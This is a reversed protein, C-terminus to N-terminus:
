SRKLGNIAQVINTNGESIKAAISSVVDEKADRTIQWERIKQLESLVAKNEGTHESHKAEQQQTKEELKEIRFNFRSAHWIMSGIVTIITLINGFGIYEVVEKM